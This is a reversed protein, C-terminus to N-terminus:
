HNINEHQKEIFPEPNIGDKKAQIRMGRSKKLYFKGDTNWYGHKILRSHSCTIDKIRKDCLPCKNKKM